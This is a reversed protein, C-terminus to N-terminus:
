ALRAGKLLEREVMKVDEPKDVDVGIEPYPVVMARVPVGLIKGGRAELEAVSLRGLLLKLITGLGFLGALALPNKRHRVVKRALPLAKKFLGPDLVVLNGGTFTGERLRAYTRKMGPFRAEVREKPVIPYVLAAEPANELFYGVAEPSLLPVDATAVLVPRDGALAELGAAVNGLLDGTDALRLDPEPDLPEGPGVFAVRRVGGERLAALVWSAMPRGALPLFAKSPVGYARALGDGRGGGLVLADM